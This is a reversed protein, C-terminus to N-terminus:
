QSLADEVAAKSTELVNWVFDPNHIGKSADGHILFYNWGARVLIDSTAILAVTGDTTIDGLQVQAETLTLTHPAEGAPSYTFDVPTKFKLIYGQQGHPETPAASAINSAQVVVAGSKMDYAKGNFTHPTYDKISVAGAATIKDTLYMGLLGALENVDAEVNEQLSGGDFVGHCQGCINLSAKFSHNTGAGSLSFEPPPPTLEMHCTACTDNIFSHPSRDGISVLYANQGMLVDGQAASHPATYNTPNGTHDNHAGNRTNHCTICIAGRGVGKAAYGAPLLPTDGTIRVTATNPEGSTNGQAHPDHCTACTQPHVTDKTLGLATLEAVTANGNAGQIQKTLDAQQIWQVFGQASHCRGCHGATAGRNEVTAEDIALEYFGHGSEQWQQFRGHRTPEGHCVGCVDSSLSMRPRADVPGQAKHALSNQPGHCNECQANALRAVAPYKALVNAWNAPNTPPSQGGPFFENLFNQYGPADDFGGNNVATNYGVTHCAFCASSYHGGANLNQTFIEAHGSHSWPTFEDPAISGDHCTTCLDSPQGGANIVGMWTGAYVQLSAGVSSETITYKGTVDPTFYPNETTADQLATLQSGTPATVTWNYTGGPAKSKGHLLVAVGLPVNEIGPSWAFPLTATITVDKTYTGKSTEVTVTLVVNSAEESDLPTTGMVMNRDLLAHREKDVIDFFEDKFATVNPLTVQVPNGEVPFASAGGSTIVVPAGSKQTWTTHTVTSGDMPAINATVTLAGEPTAPGQVKTTVVVPATPVLAMNKTTAGGGSVSVAATGNTFNTAKFTLAYVGPPVDASYTGDAGTM